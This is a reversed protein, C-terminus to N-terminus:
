GGRQGGLRIFGLWIFGRRVDKVYSFCSPVFSVLFIGLHLVLSGEEGDERGEGSSLADVLNDGLNGRAGLGAEVISGLAGAAIDVVVLALARGDVLDSITSNEAESLCARAVVQLTHEQRNRNEGSQVKSLAM